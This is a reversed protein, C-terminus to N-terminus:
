VAGRRSGQDPGSLAWNDFPLTKFDARGDVQLEVTLRHDIPLDYAQVGTAAGLEVVERAALALLGAPSRISAACGTTFAQLFGRM